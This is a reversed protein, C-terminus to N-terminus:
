SPKKREGSVKGFHFSQWYLNASLLLEIAALIRTEPTLIMMISHALYFLSVVALYVATKGNEKLLGFSLALLPALWIALYVLRKDLTQAGLFGHWIVVLLLLSSYAWKVKKVSSKLALQKARQQSSAETDQQARQEKQRKM